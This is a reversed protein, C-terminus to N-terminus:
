GRKHREILGPLIQRRLIDFQHPDRFFYTEGVTLEGILSDWLDSDTEGQQLLHFYEELDNIGERECGTMVGQTLAYRRRPGFIMGTHELILDRFREYTKEPLVTKTITGKM